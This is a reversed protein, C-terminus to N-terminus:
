PAAEETWETSPEGESLNMLYLEWRAAAFLGGHVAALCASLHDLAAGADAALVVLAHARRVAPCGLAEPPLYRDCDLWYDGRLRKM